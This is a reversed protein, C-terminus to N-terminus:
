YAGFISCLDELECLRWVHMQSYCRWSWRRCSANLWNHLPQQLNTCLITHYDDNTIIIIIISRWAPGGIMMWLTTILCPGWSPNCQAWWLGLKCIRWASENFSFATIRVKFSQLSVAPLGRINRREFSSMRQLDLSGVGLVKSLTEYTVLLLAREKRHQRRYTCSAAICHRLLGHNDGSSLSINRRRCVSTPTAVRHLGATSHCVDQWGWIWLTGTDRWM